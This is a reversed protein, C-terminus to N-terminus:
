LTQKKDHESGEISERHERVAEKTGLGGGLGTGQYEKSFAIEM